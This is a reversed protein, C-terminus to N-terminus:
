SQGRPTTPHTSNVSPRAGPRSASRPQPAELAEDCRGRMSCSRCRGAIQHNRHVVSAKRARRIEEAYRLCREVRESTLEIKFRNNEYVVYGYGGFQAGYVAKLLIMYVVLQMEDAEYLRQSKRTPKIESPVLLEHGGVMEKVVYDPQGCLGTEKDWLRQVRQQGTDSAIVVAESSLGTKQSLFRSTRLLLVVIAIALVSLSLAVDRVMEPDPPWMPLMMATAGLAQHLAM